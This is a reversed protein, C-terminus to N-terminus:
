NAGLLEILETDGTIRGDLIDQLGLELLELAGPNALAEDSVNAFPEVEAGKVDSTPPQGLQQNDSTRNM